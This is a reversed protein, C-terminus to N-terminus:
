VGVKEVRGGFAIWSLGPTERAQWRGPGRNGEPYLALEQAGQQECATGGATSGKPVEEGLNKRAESVQM